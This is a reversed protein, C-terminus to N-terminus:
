QAWDETWNAQAAQERAWETSSSQIQKLSSKADGSGILYGEFINQGAEAAPFQFLGGAQGSLPLQAWSGQTLAALSSPDEVDVLASISSTADLWDKVKPSSVYQLFTIAADRKAGQVYAPIMYATGGNNVGFQADSGSAFTSDTKEVTPFPLTGWTFDVDGLGAGSFNTGWAMAAQGGAFETGGSLSGQAPVGSWNETGCEDVFTKLLGLTDQFAPGTMDVEGTLLAHALSKVTVPMSEGAEGNADFQNLDEYESQLLMSGLAVVTWAPYLGSNDLGVPSYGAERLDGCADIFGSFTALDELEVGASKLADENYYLGAAVLNFPIAEYEGDANTGLKNPGGFYDGKFDEIWPRSTQSFPNPEALQESLSAVQDPQHPTQAFILEPATGATLQASSTQAWSSLPLVTTKVEIDPNDAEFAAILDDWASGFSDTDSTFQNPGALTITTKDSASGGACGVLTSIAIGSIAAGAVIRSRSRSQM